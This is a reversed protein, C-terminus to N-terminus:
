RHRNLVEEMPSTKSAPKTPKSFRQIMDEVKGEFWLITMMTAAFLATGIIGYLIIHLM